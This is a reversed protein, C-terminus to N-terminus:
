IVPIIVNAERLSRPNLHHGRNLCRGSKVGVRRSWRNLSNWQRTLQAARLFMVRGQQRCKVARITLNPIARQQDPVVDDFVDAWHLATLEGLSHGVGISATVGLKRLTRLAAM